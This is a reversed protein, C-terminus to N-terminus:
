GTTIVPCKDKSAQLHSQSAAHNKTRLVCPAFSDVVQLEAAKIINCLIYVSVIQVKIKTSKLTQQNLM